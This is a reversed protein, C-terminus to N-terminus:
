WTGGDMPNELCSYQLPPAMAKELLQPTPTLNWDMQRCLNVRRVHSSQLWLFFGENQGRFCRLTRSLEARFDKPSRTAGKWATSPGPQSQITCSLHPKEPKEFFSLRVHMHCINKICSILLVGGLKLTGSPFPLVGM